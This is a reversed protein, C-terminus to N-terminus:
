GTATTGAPVQNIWIEFTLGGTPIGYFNITVQDTAKNSVIWCMNAISSPAAAWASNIYTSPTIGVFYNNTGMDTPLTVNVTSNGAVVSQLVYQTVPPVYPEPAASVIPEWASTVSNWVQPSQVPLNTTPDTQWWVVTIDAPATPSFVVGNGAATNQLTVVLRRVIESMTDDGIRDTDLGQIFDLVALTATGEQVQNLQQVTLQLYGLLRSWLGKPLSSIQAVANGSTNSGAGNM